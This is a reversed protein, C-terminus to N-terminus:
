NDQPTRRRGENKNARGARDKACFIREGGPSFRFDQLWRSGATGAAQLRQMLMMLGLSPLPLSKSTVLSYISTFLLLYNLYSVFSQCREFGFAVRWPEHQGISGMESPRDGNRNHM